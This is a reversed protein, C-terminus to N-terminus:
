LILIYPTKILKQFYPISKNITYNGMSIKQLEGLLKYNQQYKSLLKKGYLHHSSRRFKTRFYLIQPGPPNFICVVKSGFPKTIWVSIQQRWSMTLTFEVSCCSQRKQHGLFNVVSKIPLKKNRYHLLKGKKKELGRWHLTPLDELTEQHNLSFILKWM